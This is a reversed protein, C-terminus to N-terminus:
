SRAARPRELTWSGLLARCLAVRTEILALQTQLRRRNIAVEPSSM